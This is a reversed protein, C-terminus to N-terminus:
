TEEVECWESVEELFDPKMYRTMGGLEQIRKRLTSFAIFRCITKLPPTLKSFTPRNVESFVKLRRDDPAVVYLPLKLNPQMTVLDAM